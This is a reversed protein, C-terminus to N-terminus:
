ISSRGSFNQIQCVRSKRLYSTRKGRNEQASQVVGWEVAESPKEKKGEWVDGKAAVCKRGGKGSEPRREYGV